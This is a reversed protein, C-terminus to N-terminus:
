GRGHGNHSEGTRDPVGLLSHQRCAAGKRRLRLIVAGVGMLDDRRGSEPSSLGGTALGSNSPTATPPYSVLEVDGGPGAEHVRAETAGPDRLCASRLVVTVQGIALQKGAVGVALPGNKWLTV